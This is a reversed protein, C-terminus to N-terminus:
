LIGVVQASCAMTIIVAFVCFRGQTYPRCASRADFCYKLGVFINKQSWFAKLDIALKQQITDFLQLSVAFYIVFFLLSFILTYADM